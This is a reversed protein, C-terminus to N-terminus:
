TAFAYTLVFCNIMLIMLGSMFVYDAIKEVVFMRRKSRTRIAWYSLYCAVLFFLADLCLLDDAITKIHSTAVLAHIVGVVTLCLGLLTASVSFIHICIDEELIPSESRHNTQSFAEDARPEKNM